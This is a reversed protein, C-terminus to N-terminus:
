AHDRVLHGEFHEITIILVQTTSELETLSDNEIISAPLAIAVEPINEVWPALGGLVELDSENTRFM